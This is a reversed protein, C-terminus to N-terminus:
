KASGTHGTGAQAALWEDVVRAEVAAHDRLGSVIAREASGGVFPVTVKLDAEIVRVAGQGDPGTDVAIKGSGRLMNAYHDPVIRFTTTSTRRDLQSEEVWTLKAPDVVRSVRGSLRGAFRYRVRQAVVDGRDDQDLLRPSGLDPRAGLHALLAPDVFAAAM